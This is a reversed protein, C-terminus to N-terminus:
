TKSIFPDFISGIYLYDQWDTSFRRKEIITDMKNRNKKDFIDIGAEDINIWKGDYITSDTEKCVYIFVNEAQKMLKRLYIAKRM